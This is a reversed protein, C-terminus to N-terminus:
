GVMLYLIVIGKKQLEKSVNKMRTLHGLGSLSSCDCYIAIKNIM